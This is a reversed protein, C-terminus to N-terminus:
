LLSIKSLFLCNLSIKSFDLVDNILALLAQSSTNLTEAFERQRDDLQTEQLMASFNVIANLPTRIEHSMTNLFASRVQLLANAQLRSLITAVAGVLLFTALPPVVPLLYGWYLALM